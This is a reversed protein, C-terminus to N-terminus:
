EVKVAGRVASRGASSLTSPANLAYATDRGSCLSSTSLIGSASGTSSYSTRQQPTARRREQLLIDTLWHVSTYGVPDSRGLKAIYDWVVRIAKLNTLVHSALQRLAQPRLQLCRHRGVVVTLSGAARSHLQGASSRCGSTSRRGTASLKAGRSATQSEPCSSCSLLDPGASM